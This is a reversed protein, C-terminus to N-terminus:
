KKKGIWKWFSVRKKPFYIISLKKIIRVFKDKNNLLDNIQNIM